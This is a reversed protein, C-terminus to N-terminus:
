KTVEISDLVDGTPTGILNMTVKNGQTRVLVYGTDSRVSEPTWPVPTEGASYTAGGGGSTIHWVPHVFEPDPSYQDLVGDGDTDDDPYIGVNATSDILTRHYSHEDGTFMAVSKPSSAVARWLRTRAEVIGLPEPEVEGSDQNKTYARINNDGSWWMAGDVHGMSPFIPAHTFLFIFKVSPDSDADAITQEVWELQDDMIYGYPSGGYKVVHDFFIATSWYTNNVSIVKVPGYQFSYVNEKYTPRRPDSPELGNTPNFVEAAFVAEGSETAYPWKDMLLAGSYQNCVSEHNGMGPYVPRSRWYAAMGQKWGKMQLIYDEKDTPNGWILDGGFIFFDTKKRYADVAIEKLTYLNVGMYNREGGGGTGGRSDSAFAFVVDGQGKEPATYLPYTNSSVTRGDSAVSRVYYDYEADPTLGSIKVSHTRTDGGEEAYSDSQLLVEGSCPEDTEWVITVSTPDDSSVLTVYPGDVISPLKRVVGDGDKEFSVFSGYMEVEFREEDDNIVQLRYEITQSASSIGGTAWSNADFKPKYLAAIPILGEGGSMFGSHESGYGRDETFFSYDYGSLGAEFPYQGLFIRGRLSENGVDLTLGEESEGVFNNLDDFTLSNLIVTKREGEPVLVPLGDYRSFSREYTELLNGATDEAGEIMVTHDRTIDLPLTPTFTLMTGSDDLKVEGIVSGSGIGPIVLKVSFADSVSAPDMSASFTISIEESTLGTETVVPSDQAAWASVSLVMVVTFVAVMVACPLKKTMRERNEM